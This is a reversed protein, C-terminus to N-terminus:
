KLKHKGTDIDLMPNGSIKDNTLDSSVDGAPKVYDVDVLVISNYIKYFYDKEKEYSDKSIWFDLRYNYIDSKFYMTDFIYKNQPNITIDLITHYGELNELYVAENKTFNGKYKNVREYDQSKIKEFYKDNKMAEAAVTCRVGAKITENYGIFLVESKDTNFYDAYDREFKDFHIYRYKILWNEDFPILLKLVQNDYANKEYTDRFIDGPAIKGGNDDRPTFSKCSAAVIFFIITFMKCFYKERWMKKCSGRNLSFLINKILSNNMKLLEKIQRCINM